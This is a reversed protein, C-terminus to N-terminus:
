KQKIFLFQLLFFCGWCSDSGFFAIYMTVSIYKTILLTTQSSVFSLVADDWTNHEKEMRNCILPPFFMSM